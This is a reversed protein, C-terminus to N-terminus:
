SLYYFTNIIEKEQSVQDAFYGLARIEPLTHVDGACASCLKVKYCKMTGPM